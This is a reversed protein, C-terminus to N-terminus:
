SPDMLQATLKMTSLINGDVKLTKANITAMELTSVFNLYRTQFILAISGNVQIIAQFREASSNNFRQLKSLHNEKQLNGLNLQVRMPDSSLVLKLGLNAMLASARSIHITLLAMMKGGTQMNGNAVMGANSIDMIMTLAFSSKKNNSIGATTNRVKRSTKM